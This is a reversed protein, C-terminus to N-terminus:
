KTNLRAADKTQKSWSWKLDLCNDLLLDYTQEIPILRSSGLSERSHSMYLLNNNMQDQGM